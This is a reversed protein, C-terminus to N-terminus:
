LDPVTRSSYQRGDVTQMAGPFKQAATSRFWDDIQARM